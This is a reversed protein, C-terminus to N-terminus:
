DISKGTAVAIIDIYKEYKQRAAESQPMKNHYASSYNSFEGIMNKMTRLIVKSRNEPTDAEPAVTVKDDVDIVPAGDERVGSRYVPNDIVLALDGDFDCGQLRQTVISKCNLMCVNDLHHVWRLQENDVANLLVHESACIHPNREISRIGHMAGSIDHSYFEDAELCGKVEIGGIHELLAILDPAIFKFCGKLFLKGCKFENVYKSIARRIYQRVSDEQLMVPNKLIARCYSNLGTHRDATLGLFCYVYLPDGSIIREAWDVSDGALTAFDDFDMQLDQLIQYNGRTYVPEREKSFNWKTIGVCHNYKVFRNWYDDWDFCTGTRNFYGYGKYMSETLIFMPEADPLVSHRIGWIDTISTIGHEQFYAPYDIEHTVGKIYPMRLLLTTPRERLNLYEQVHTTIAPHHIGCGDFINLTIDREGEAVDKQTWAFTEGNAGTIETELDYLYRIRQKPFTVKKDPVVIVKPIWGEICFCSSLMLGRYAYYKSLVAKDIHVGMMVAEDLSQIIEDRVFSLIGNRTMSASRESLVFHRDNLYFGDHILRAVPEEKDTLGNCDVFVIWKNFDSSDGTILRIQRFLQNDQQAIRYFVSREEPILVRYDAAIIAKLKLKYLQYLKPSSM